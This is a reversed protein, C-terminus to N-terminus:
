KSLGMSDEYPLTWIPETINDIGAAFFKYFESIEAALRDM